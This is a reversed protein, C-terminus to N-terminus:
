ITSSNARTVKETKRFSVTAEAFDSREEWTLAFSGFWGRVLVVNCIEDVKGFVAAQNVRKKETETEPWFKPERVEDLSIITGEHIDGAIGFKGHRRDALLDRISDAMLKRFSINKPSEKLSSM